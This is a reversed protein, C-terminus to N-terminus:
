DNQLCILQFTAEKKKKKSQKTFLPLKKHNNGVGKGIRQTVYLVIGYLVAPQVLSTIITKGEVEKYGIFLIYM